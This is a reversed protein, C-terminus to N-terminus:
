GGIVALPGLPQALLWAGRRSLAEPSMRQQWIPDQWAVMLTVLVVGYALLLLWRMWPLPRSSEEVRVESEPLPHRAWGWRMFTLSARDQGVQRAADAPTARLRTKRGEM